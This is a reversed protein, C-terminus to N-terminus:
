LGLQAWYREIQNVVEEDRDSPPTYEIAVKARFLELLAVRQPKNLDSPIAPPECRMPDVSGSSMALATARLTLMLLESGKDQLERIGAANPSLALESLADRIQKRAPRARERPDGLGAAIAAFLGTAALFRKRSIRDAVLWALAMNTLLQPLGIRVAKQMLDVGNGTGSFARDVFDFVAAEVAASCENVQHEIEPVYADRGVARARRALQKGLQWWEQGALASYLSLRWIMEPEVACAARLIAQIVVGFPGLPHSMDVRLEETKPLGEEPLGWRRLGNILDSARSLVAEAAAETPPTPSTDQAKGNASM